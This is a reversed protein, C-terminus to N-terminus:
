KWYQMQADLSCEVKQGQGGTHSHGHSQGEHIDMKEKIKHMFKKMGSM